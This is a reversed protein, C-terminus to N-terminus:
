LKNTTCVNIYIPLVWVLQITKAFVKNASCFACPTNILAHRRVHLVYIFDMLCFVVRFLYVRLMAHNPM